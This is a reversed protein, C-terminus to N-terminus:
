LHINVETSTYPKKKEKQKTKNKPKIAQTKNKNDRSISLHHEKAIFTYQLAFPIVSKGSGVWVLDKAADRKRLAM